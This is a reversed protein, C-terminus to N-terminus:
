QVPDWVHNNINVYKNFRFSSTFRNSIIIVFSCVYFLLWASFKSVPIQIIWRLASTDFEEIIATNCNWEVFFGRGLYDKRLPNLFLRIELSAFSKRGCPITKKARTVLNCFSEMSLHRQKRSRVFFFLKTGIVVTVLNREYSLSQNPTNTWDSAAKYDKAGSKPLENIRTQRWVQKNGWWRGM